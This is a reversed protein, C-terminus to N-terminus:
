CQLNNPAKYSKKRRKLSVVGNRNIVVYHSRRQRGNSLTVTHNSATSPKLMLIIKLFM